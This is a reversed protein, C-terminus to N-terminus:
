RLRQDRQGRSRGVQRDSDTYVGYDKNHGRHLVVIDGKDPFQVDYVVVGDMKIETHGFGLFKSHRKLQLEKSPTPSLRGTQSDELIHYMATTM